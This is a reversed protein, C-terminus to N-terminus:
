PAESCQYTVVNGAGDIVLDSSTLTKLTGGVIACVRPTQTAFLLTCKGGAGPGLTITGESMEPEDSEIALIAPNGCSILHTRMAAARHVKAHTVQGGITVSAFPEPAPTLLRSAIVAAVGVGALPAHKKVADNM